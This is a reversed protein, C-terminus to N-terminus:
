VTALSLLVDTAGVYEIHLSRAADLLMTMTEDMKPGPLVGYQERCVKEARGLCIINLPLSYLRPVNRYKMTVGMVKEHATGSTFYTGAKSEWLCTQSGVDPEHGEIPKPKYPEEGLLIILEETIHEGLKTTWQGSKKIDPRKLILMKQGWEDELIKRKKTDNTKNKSVKVEPLFSLDAFLWQIVERQRLLVVRPDTNRAITSIVTEM